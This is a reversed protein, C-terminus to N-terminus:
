WKCELDFLKSDELFYLVQGADDRGSEEDDVLLCNAPVGVNPFETQEIKELDMWRLDLQNTLSLCIRAIKDRLMQTYNEKKKVSRLTNIGEELTCYSGSWGRTEITEERTTTLM